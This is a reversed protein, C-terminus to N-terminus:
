ILERRSQVQVIPRKGPIPRELVLRGRQVLGVSADRVTKVGAVKMQDHARRRRSCGYFKANQDISLRWARSVTNVDVFLAVARNAFLPQILQDPLLLRDGITLEFHTKEIRSQLSEREREASGCRLRRLKLLDVM